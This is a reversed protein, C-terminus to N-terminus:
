YLAIIAECRLNVGDKERRWGGGSYGGSERGAGTGPGFTMMMVM